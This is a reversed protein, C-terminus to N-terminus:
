KWVNVRICTESLMSSHGSFPLFVREFYVKQVRWFLKYYTNRSILIHYGFKELM